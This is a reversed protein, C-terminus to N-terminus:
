RPGIHLGAQGTARPPIHGRLPASRRSDAAVAPPGIVGAPNQPTPPGPVISRSAPRDLADHLSTVVSGNSDTKKTPDDHADYGSTFGSLDPDPAGLPWNAGVGVQDLTGDAMQTVIRRDLADYAYRTVNLNDDTRSTLRSSDDWSQSTLIDLPDTSDAGDANMDRITQIERSM